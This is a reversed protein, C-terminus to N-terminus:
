ALWKRLNDRWDRIEAETWEDPHQPYDEDTSAFGCRRQLEAQLLRIEVIVAVKRARCRRSVRRQHANM